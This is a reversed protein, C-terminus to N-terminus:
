GVYDSAKQLAELVDALNELNITIGSKGPKLVTDTPDNPRTWWERLSAYERAGKSLYQVRIVEHENKPIDAIHVESDWSPVRHLPANSV